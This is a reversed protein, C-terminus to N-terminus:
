VTMHRIASAMGSLTKEARRVMRRIKNTRRRRMAVAGFGLMALLAAPVAWMSLSHNM